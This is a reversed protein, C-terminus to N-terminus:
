KKELIKKVTEYDTLAKNTGIGDYFSKNLKDPPVVAWEKALEKIFDDTSLKGEKFAQFKRYELRSRALRDQLKEDFLANQDIGLKKVAEKLTINIFQYRGVANSGVGDDKMKKQLAYIEKITMKTLPKEKGGYVSNYNDSSELKGIFDLIEQGKITPSITEPKRKPLPSLASEPKRQPVPALTQDPSRPKIMRGTADYEIPKGELNQDTQEENVRTFIEIKKQRPMARAMASAVGSNFGGGFGITESSREPPGFVDDSTRRTLTEFLSRETEGGPKLIGDVKLNRDAQYSKIRTDLARTLIPNKEDDDPADFYGANKLNRKTKLVDDAANDMSNGVSGSLRGAFREYFNM